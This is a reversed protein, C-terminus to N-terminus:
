SKIVAAQSNTIRRKCANVTCRINFAIRYRCFHYFTKGIRRPITRCYISGTSSCFALQSIQVFSNRFIGFADYFPVFTRIISNVANLQSTITCNRRRAVAEGYISISIDCSLSITTLAIIGIVIEIHIMSVANRHSVAIACGHINVRKAYMEFYPFLFSKNVSVGYYCATDICIGYLSISHIYTILFLPVRYYGLILKSVINTRRRFAHHFPICRRIGIPVRGIRFANEM